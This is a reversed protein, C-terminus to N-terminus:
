QALGELTIRMISTSKEVFAFKKTPAYCSRTRNEPLGGVIRM